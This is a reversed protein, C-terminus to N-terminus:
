KILEIYGSLVSESEVVGEILQEYYKCVYYYSGAVLENGNINTGDWNIEPDNTEFVLVGDISYIKLDINSIFRSVRPKFLDNSSDNNPTFANPLVYNPCNDKCVMNSPLSENGQDDLATVTYCGLLGLDPQHETNVATFNEIRTLNISDESYYLNFSSPLECDINVLPQISIDNKLIEDLGGIEVDCNNSVSITPPCPPVNDIPIVCVEQSFNIISFPLNETNYTGESKILYCYEEGNVLGLDLYSSETVTAISDFQADNFGKRYVIYSENLWPTEANWSVLIQEDSAFPSVFISSAIATEGLLESGNVMFNVKYFYQNEVTNLLSDVYFTDHEVHYENATSSFVLEYNGNIATSRSLQYTYPPANLLTDLFQAAPKTWKVSVKGNTEDTELVNAETIFPLDKGIIICVETSALSSIRNFEFGGASEKAMHAVIRYCFTKGKQLGRDPYLYASDGSEELTNFILREYGMAELDTKCSDLLTPSSGERRWVSFGKFEDTENECVYPNDWFLNIDTQNTFIRPNEPPPAIVTIKITKLDALNLSDENNDVARLVLLYPQERPHECTTPWVFQGNLVPVVFGNPADLTANDDLLFVGGTASLRVQQGADPDTVSVDIKVTDGAVVCIEDISEIVPPSNDCSQILIQMDRIMTDIAVGERFEIIRFAINFEGQIPPAEWRIEGTQNDFFFNNASSPAIDEPFLYNPVELNVDQLPVILEYALSDGDPEYANPSHIFTEGVCGVDIPPQLLVPSSNLGQFQQNFLTLSTQLFFPVNVSGAINQIGGNRNPDQMSIIYHGISPYIHRSVYKNVKTDNELSEGQPIAGPGNTRLIYECSGDGWCIELSDRVVSNSSEKTYTTITAEIEFQSIQVYTIEGARNHTAFLEINIFFVLISLIFLFRQNLFQIM